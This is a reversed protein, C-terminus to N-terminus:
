KLDLGSSYFKPIASMTVLACPEPDAEVIDLKKNILDVFSPKFNNAKPANFIM